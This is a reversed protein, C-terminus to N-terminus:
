AHHREELSQRPARCEAPPEGAVAGLQDEGGRPVLPCVAIEDPDLVQRRLDESTISEVRTAEIDAM